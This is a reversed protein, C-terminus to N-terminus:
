DEGVWGDGGCSRCNGRGSCSYCNRDEKKSASSYLKGDGGCTNCDGDGGCVGCRSKVDYIDRNSSVIGGSSGKSSSNDASASEKKARADNEAKEEAYANEYGEIAIAQPMRIYIHLEKKDSTLRNEIILQGKNGIITPSNIEPHYLYYYNGESRDLMYGMKYLVKLYDQVMTSEVDDTAYGITLLYPSKDNLWTVYHRFSKSTDIDMLDPLIAPNTVESESKSSVNGNNDKYISIAKLEINKTGEFVIKNNYEDHHYTIILLTDKDNIHFLSYKSFSDKEELNTVVFHYKDRITNVYSVVKDSVDSNAKYQHYVKGNVVTKETLPLGFYVEPDPIYVTKKHPAVAIILVTLLLACSGLAIYRTKKNSWIMEALLKIKEKFVVNRKAKKTEPEVALKPEVATSSNIDKETIIKEGCKFCFQAEDPLQQGCHMCYM